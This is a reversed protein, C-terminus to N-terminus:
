LDYVGKPQIRGRARYRVVEDKDKSLKILVKIPTFLNYAVNWRIEWDKDTSLITLITKPTRHNEALKEKIDDSLTGLAYQIKFEKVTM